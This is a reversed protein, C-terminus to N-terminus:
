YLRGGPGLHIVHPGDRDKKRQMKLRFSELPGGVPRKEEKRPVFKPDHLAMYRLDDMMHNDKRQDPAEQVVGAVRKRHYRKIEYLFNPLKQEMVRLRAKGNERVRLLGQVALVGAMVDDNALIFGHGTALSKVKNQQLAESYQQMVTKGAAVQTTLAMNPDMVFAQFVQGECARRMAEGFLAANTERLYLEDYLLVIDEEDRPPVAVFLVACVRHGPDVYAYRTWHKPVEKLPHGHILMNFTPYVKYSTIAYEGGVRVRAEEDTLDAAFERRAEDSIHKNESLLVVFESIRRKGEPKDVREKEAREHLEYLQDTGAQPTASWIGRGKRDVIRAAMEPYWAPDIIEEDFWFGDIPSGQPPKGLSSFFYLEWGNTLRIVNPVNEKKNEWGVEAVFRKPILPQAPRAEGERAADEPTWPRFARWRGSHRDRIIKFANPRFLKAYMVKGLHKQDKGVLFWCGDRVPYKGYPDQGTVARAVEVAATLTKGSRNSGRLIRYPSNCALFREQEPLPEFLNLAEVRRKALENVLTRTRQLTFASVYGKGYLDAEDLTVRDADVSVGPDPDTPLRAPPVVKPQPRNRPARDPDPLSELTQEPGKRRAPRKKAM